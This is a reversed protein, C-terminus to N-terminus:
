QPALKVAGEVGREEVVEIEFRAAARAASWSSRLDHPACNPLYAQLTNLFRRKSVTDGRFGSKVASFDEIRASRTSRPNRPFVM